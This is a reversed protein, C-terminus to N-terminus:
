STRGRWAAGHDRDAMGRRKLLEELPVTESQGAHLAILRQEALHLDELDDPHARVAQRVDFSKSRGTAKALADLRQEVDARLRIVLM